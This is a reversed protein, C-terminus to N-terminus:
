VDWQEFRMTHQLKAFARGVTAVVDEPSMEPTIVFSSFWQRWVGDIKLAVLLSGYSHDENLYAQGDADTEVPHAPEQWALRIDEIVNGIFRRKSAM